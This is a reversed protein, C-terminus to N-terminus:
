AYALSRRYRWATIALSIGIVITWLNEGIWGAVITLLAVAFGAWAAIWSARGRSMRFNLVSRLVHGGDLPLGPLLNFLGLGLNILALTQLGQRVVDHHSAGVYLDASGLRASAQASDPSGYFAGYSWAAIALAIAAIALNTLPGALAILNESRRTAPRMYFEAYGGYWTIVIQKVPVGQARAAFAHGLEHATVSALIIVVLALGDFVGNSSGALLLFVLAQPALMIM